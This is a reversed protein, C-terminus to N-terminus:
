QKARDQGPNLWRKRLHGRMELYLARAREKEADTPPSGAAIFQQIQLTTQASGITPGDSALFALLPSRALKARLGSWHGTRPVVPWGAGDYM